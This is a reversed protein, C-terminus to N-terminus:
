GALKRLIWNNHHSCARNNQCPFYEPPSHVSSVSHNVSEARFGVVENPQIILRGPRQCWLRRERQRLIRSQGFALGTEWKVATSVREATYRGGESQVIFAVLLSFVRQVRSANAGEFTKM